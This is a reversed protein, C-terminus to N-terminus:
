LLETTENTQRYDCKRDIKRCFPKQELIKLAWVYSEYLRLEHIINM